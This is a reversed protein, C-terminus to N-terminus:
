SVRQSTVESFGHTDICIRNGPGYSFMRQECFLLEYYKRNHFKLGKHKFGILRVSGLGQM